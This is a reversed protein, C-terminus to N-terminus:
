PISPITIPSAENMRVMADVFRTVGSETPAFAVPSPDSLDYRAMFFEPNDSAFVVVGLDDAQEIRGIIEELEVVTTSNLLNIPPNAFVVRWYGPAPGDITFQTLGGGTTAM